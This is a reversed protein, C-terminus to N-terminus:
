KIYMNCSTFFKYTFLLFYIYFVCFHIFYLIFRTAIKGRLDGEGRSEREM